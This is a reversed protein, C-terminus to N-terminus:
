LREVVSGCRRAAELANLVERVPPGKLRMVLERNSLAKNTLNASGTYAMRRDLCVAKIHMAGFPPEGRCSVITAGASSLEALRARMGRCTREHLSAEDVLVCVTVPERLRHVLARTIGSHDFVYSALVVERASGIDTYLSDFWAELCLVEVSAASPRGIPSLASTRPPVRPAVITRCPRGARRGSVVGGRGCACHTRCRREGCVHCPGRIQLATGPRVRSM